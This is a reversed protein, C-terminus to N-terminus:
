SQQLIETFCISFEFYINSGSSPNGIPIYPDYTGFGIIKSAFGSIQLDVLGNEVTATCTETGIYLSIDSTSTSGVYKDGDGYINSIASKYTFVYTGDELGISSIDFTISQPDSKYFSTNSYNGSVYDSTPTLTATISDSSTIQTNNGDLNRYTNSSTYKSNISPKYVRATNGQIGITYTFVGKFVGLPVIQNSVYGANNFADYVAGSTILNNSGSTPVTDVTLQDQISELDSKYALEHNSGDNFVPKGNFSGLYVTGGTSRTFGIFSYYQNGSKLTLPTTSSTNHVTGGSLPLYLGEHNTQANTSGRM